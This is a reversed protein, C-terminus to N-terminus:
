NLMSHAIRHLEMSANHLHERWHSLFSRDSQIQVAARLIEPDLAEPAPGGPIRRIRVFNDADLSRRLVEEDPALVGAERLSQLVFAVVKLRDFNGALARVADTVIRHAQQFSIGTSRVLTDALETVSLFNDQARAQMKAADFSAESLLGELLQLVRLGDAFALEVLPQLSDESDNIDTFPTNHLSSLVAQSESLARSALIRVHELPVPNRKQPMITSVQVYGDSLRLYGFETTSWLLLDQAFRGINLMMVALVSCSETIYDVSAIAGYSNTQLGEFGLLYETRSRNIPFGTTTIACAGLPCRNVRVLAARVREADRELIEVMGMLYHGLTTPQAPQNHTYAPMLTARHERALEVLRARLCIAAHLTQLLHERLIMRYMTMDIDNRSRATHIRGANEPGCLGVLKRQVLFFLDEVSGDFETTLIEDRDLTELARFCASAVEPSVIDQEALMVLHAYDIEIMSSLFLRKAHTFNLGLVTDRYIPAPFVSVSKM